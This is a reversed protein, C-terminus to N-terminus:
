YEPIYNTCRKIEDEKAGYYMLIINELLKALGEGFVNELSQSIMKYRANMEIIPM